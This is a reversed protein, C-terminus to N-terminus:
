KWNKEICVKLLLKARHIIQWYNTQTIELDQCIEKTDKGDIYKSTIIYRWKAPLDDMCIAMIKNFEPDDLLNKNASWDPNLKSPDWGGDSTFLSDTIKQLTLELTYDTNVLNLKSSQRFHDAIKNNLIGFLWTKATSKNEFKEFSEFASVFTDQVLDESVTHNGIRTISWQLLDKTYDKVWENVVQYKNMYIIM